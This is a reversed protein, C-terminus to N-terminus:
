HQQWSRERDCSSRRAGWHRKCRPSRGSPRWRGRPARTRSRSRWSSGRRTASCASGRARVRSPPAARQEHRTSPPDLAAGPRRRFAGVASALRRAGRRARRGGGGSGRARRARRADPASRGRAVRGLAAAHRRACRRPRARARSRGGFAISSERWLGALPSPVGTCSRSPGAATLPSARGGRRWQTQPRPLRRPLSGRTLLGAARRSM